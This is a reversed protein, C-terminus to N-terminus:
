SDLDIHPAKDLNFTRDNHHTNGVRGNHYSAKM